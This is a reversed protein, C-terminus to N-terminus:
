CYNDLTARRFRGADYDGSPGIDRLFGCNPRMM